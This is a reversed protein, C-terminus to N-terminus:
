NMVLLKLLKKLRIMLLREMRLKMVMVRILIKWNGVLMINLWMNGLVVKLMSILLRSYVRIVCWSVVCVLWLLIVVMGSLRFVGVLMLMVRSISLGVNRVKLCCFMFGCVVFM